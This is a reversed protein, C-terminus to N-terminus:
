LDKSSKLKVEVEMVKGQRWFKMKVVDGSEYKRIISQLPTNENVVSGNVELIVDREVLGALDAPGNKVIAGNLVGGDGVLLAGSSLSPDIELAQKATLMVFRVGLIPRVIEGYKLISKLVPKLDNIPIAFGIANASQELATNMGVVQGSLNVLPGGSNGLNIAADTQILGALNEVSGLGADNYAFIQRGKASVIGLTVTNDYQALANGIALVKQGVVLQDSDGFEVVPFKRTDKNVIQLVAVDDFQDRSLVKADFESEDALVVKYFSNEDLVVHRNTFVLGNESVIFGTGASIQRFDNNVGTGSYALISVIAPSAKELASIVLTEENFVEKESIEFSKKGIEFKLGQNLVYFSLFGGFIGAFLALILCLFILFSKRM